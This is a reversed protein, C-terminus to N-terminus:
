NAFEKLGEYYKKGDLEWSGDTYTAPIKNFFDKDDQNDTINQIAKMPVEVNTGDLSLSNLDLKNDDMNIDSADGTITDALVMNTFVLTIQEADSMDGYDVIGKIPNADDDILKKLADRQEQPMEEVAKQMANIDSDEASSIATMAAVFQEDNRYSSVKEELNDAQTMAKTYDDAFTQVGDLSVQNASESAVAVSDKAQDAAGCGTFALAGILFASALASKKSSIAM